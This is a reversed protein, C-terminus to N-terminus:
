INQDCHCVLWFTMNEVQIEYVASIPIYLEVIYRYGNARDQHLYAILLFLGQLWLM